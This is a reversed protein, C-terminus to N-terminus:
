STGSNTNMSESESWIERSEKEVKEMAVAVEELRGVVDLVGLNVRKFYKDNAARRKRALLIDGETEDELGKGKAAGETGGDKTPETPKTAEEDHEIPHDVIEDAESRAWAQALSIQAARLEELAASHEPGFFHTGRSASLEVEALTAQMEAWLADTRDGENQQQHQRQVGSARPLSPNANINQSSDPAKTSRM